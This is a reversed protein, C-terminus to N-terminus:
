GALARIFIGIGYAGLFVPVMGLSPRPNRETKEVYLRVMAAVVIITSLVAVVTTVGLVIGVLLGFVAWALLELDNRQLPGCLGPRSVAKASASQRKGPRRRPSM